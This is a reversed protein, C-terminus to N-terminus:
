KLRDDIIPMFKSRRNLIFENKLEVNFQCNKSIAESFALSISLENQIKKVEKEDKIEHKNLLITVKEKNSSINKLHIQFLVPKGLIEKLKYKISEYDILNGSLNFCNDSRNHLSLYYKKKSDMFLSVKDCIKYRIIPIPSSVFSTVLLNNNEDQEFFFSKELIKYPSTEKSIAIISTETAGYFGFFKVNPWFLKLQKRYHESFSEGTFIIKSINLSIKFQKSFNMIMLISSPTGVLTNVKFKNLLSFYDPNEKFLFHYQGLSLLSAQMYPLVSNIRDAFYSCDGSSLLNAIVDGKSIIQYEEIITLLELGYTKKDRDDPYENVLTLPTGTTGSTLSVFYPPKYNQRLLSESLNNIDSKKQVPYTQYFDEQNKVIKVYDPFFRSYRKIIFNFKKVNFTTSRVTDM